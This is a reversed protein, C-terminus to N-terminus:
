GIVAPSGGEDTGWVDEEEPVWTEREREGSETREREADGGYPDYGAATPTRRGAATETEYANIRRRGRGLAGGESTVIDDDDYVQRVREGSGNRESGGGM